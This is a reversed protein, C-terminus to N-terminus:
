PGDVGEIVTELMAALTTTTTSPVISPSHAAFSRGKFTEIFTMLRLRASAIVPILKEAGSQDIEGVAFLAARAIELEATSLEGKRDEIWRELARFTRKITTRAPWPSSPLDDQKLVLANMM